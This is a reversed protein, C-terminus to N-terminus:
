IGPTIAIPVEGAVLTHLAHDSALQVVVNPAVSEIRSDLPRGRTSV